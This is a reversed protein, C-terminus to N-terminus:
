LWALISDEGVPTILVTQYSTKSFPSWGEGEQNTPSGQHGRRLTHTPIHTRVHVCGHTVCVVTRSHWASMSLLSAVWGWLVTWLLLISTVVCKHAVLLRSVCGM